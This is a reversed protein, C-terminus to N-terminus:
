PNQSSVNDYHINTVFSVSALMGGFFPQFFLLQSKNTYNQGDLNKGTLFNGMHRKLVHLEVILLTM